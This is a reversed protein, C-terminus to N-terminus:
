AGLIQSSVARAEDYRGLNQLVYGLNFSYSITGPELQVARRAAALAKEQKEPRLSYLTALNAYAPAFNSNLAIAKELSAEAKRWQEPMGRAQQLNVITSYYYTLSSKSNLETARRLEKAANDLDHQEFYYTGLIEHALALSADEQIAQDLLTRAELVRQMHLHFDGRR